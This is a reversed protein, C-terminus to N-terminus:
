WCRDTAATKAGAQNLTMTGCKETAQNGTPEATLTYTPPLATGVELTLTYNAAVKTPVPIGIDGLTGAFARTDLLYQQQRAAVSILFAQAETRTSRRVYEQYSPLAIAMLIAAIAVTIMLEILTFGSPRSPRAHRAVCTRDAKANLADDQALHSAM